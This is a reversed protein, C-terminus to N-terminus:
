HADFPARVGRGRSDIISVRTIARDPQSKCPARRERRKLEQHKQPDSIGRANDRRINFRRERRAGDRVLALSPVPSNASSADASRKAFNKM